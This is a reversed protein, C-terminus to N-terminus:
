SSSTITTSDDLRLYAFSEDLESLEKDNKNEDFITHTAEEVVLTKSNYVGFAKSTEFYGLFIGFYSKSDFKGLSDKTNLIFCKCGFPYFYSINPKQGKWLEYPTKKLIPRLYTKNQLYCATNVAKVWLHKLTSNDNLM